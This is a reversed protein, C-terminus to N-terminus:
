SRTKATPQITKASRPQGRNTTSGRKRKKKQGEMSGQKGKEKRERRQTRSVGVTASRTAFLKMRKQSSVEWPVIDDTQEEEEGILQSDGTTNGKRARKEQVHRDVETLEHVKM